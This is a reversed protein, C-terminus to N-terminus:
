FNNDDVSPERLATVAGYNTLNPPSAAAVLM